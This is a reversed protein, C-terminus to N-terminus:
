HLRRQDNELSYVASQMVLQYLFLILQLTPM